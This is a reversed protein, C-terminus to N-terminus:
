KVAQNIAQQLDAKIKPDKLHGKDDFAKYADSLSVQQPVVNGGLVELISRLHNLGKAGGNPSPSASMIVFKKGSFADRSAGGEEKRSAWDITNKLVGSVSGNYEPSAIVIVQSQMMLDRLKKANSPMKENKELDADYFPATYDELNIVTVNAGAQRAMEAAEVVLKKNVSEKQTSGAFALVKVEAQLTTTFVLALLAMWKYMFKELYHKIQKRFINTM